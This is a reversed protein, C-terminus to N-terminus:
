NYKRPRKDPYKNQYKKCLKKLEGWSLYEGLDLGFLKTFDNFGSEFLEDSTPFDYKSAWIDYKSKTNIKDGNNRKSNEVRM